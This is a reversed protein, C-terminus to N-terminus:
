SIQEVGIAVKGDDPSATLALKLNEFYNEPYPFKKFMDRAQIAKAIEGSTLVHATIQGSFLIRPDCYDMLFFNRDADFSRLLEGRSVEAQGKADLFVTYYFDNKKSMSFRLRVALGCKLDGTARLIVTEPIM